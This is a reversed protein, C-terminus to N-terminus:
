VFKFKLKFSSDLKTMFPRKYRLTRQDMDDFTHAQFEEEKFKLGNSSILYM